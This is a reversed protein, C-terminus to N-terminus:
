IFFKTGTSILPVGIAVYSVCIPKSIILFQKSTSTKSGWFRLLSPVLNNFDKSIVVKNGKSYHDNIESVIGHKIDDWNLNKEKKVTVFDEGFFVMVTGKLSLIRDALAVKINKDKKTFELPGAESVTKGPLFKLTDPNPTQETEIM